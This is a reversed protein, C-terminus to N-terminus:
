TDLKEFYKKIDLMPRFSNALIALVDGHCPLPYCWCGLSKNTLECVNDILNPQKLLHDFYYKRIVEQRTGDKGEKFPNFWKSKALKAYFNDRGIYVDYTKTTKHNVVYTRGLIQEQLSNM